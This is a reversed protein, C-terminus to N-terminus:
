EGGNKGGINVQDNGSIKFLSEGQFTMGVEKRGLNMLRAKWAPTLADSPIHGNFSKALLAEKIIEAKDNQNCPFKEGYIILNEVVSRIGETRAKVIAHQSDNEYKALEQKLRENEEQLRQCEDSRDAKECPKAKQELQKAKNDLEQKHLRELVKVNREEFCRDLMKVIKDSPENMTYCWANFIYERALQCVEVDKIGVIIARLRRYRFGETEEKWNVKTMCSPRDNIRRLFERIGTMAQKNKM